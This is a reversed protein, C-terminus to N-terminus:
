LMKNSNVGGIKGKPCRDHWNNKESSACHFLAAFISKKMNVLNGQNSRITLGNYNQWRDIM